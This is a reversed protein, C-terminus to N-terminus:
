LLEKLFLCRCLVLISCDHPSSDLAFQEKSPTNRWVAILSQDTRRIVLETDIEITERKCIIRLELIKEASETPKESVVWTGGENSLSQITQQIGTMGNRRFFTRKWIPWPTIQATAPWNLAANAVLKMVISRKDTRSQGCDNLLPSTLKM